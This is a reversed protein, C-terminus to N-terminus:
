KAARRAAEVFQAMRAASKMGPRGPHEVGSAVDVGWPRVVGIARGVNDAHLGGALMVARRKAVDVALSWDFTAGTGGLAVESRADLLLPASGYAEAGVVDDRTAVRAAQYAVDGLSAVLEPPEDGHLQARHAGTRTLAGRIEVASWGAVVLVIQASGGVAGAIQAARDEDVCRKSSAILNVGLWDAGAEVAALADEVSTIGCIKVVIGM